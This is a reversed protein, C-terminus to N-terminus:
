GSSSAQSSNILGSPPRHHVCFVLYCFSRGLHRSIYKTWFLTLLYCFGFLLVSLCLFVSKYILIDPGQLWFPDWLWDKSVGPKLAPIGVNYKDNIVVIFVAATFHREESVCILKVAVRHGTTASCDDCHFSKCREM